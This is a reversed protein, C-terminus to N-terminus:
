GATKLAYSIHALETKDGKESLVRRYEFEIQAEELHRSAPISSAYRARRTAPVGNTRVQVDGNILRYLGGSGASGFGFARRLSPPRKRPLPLQPSKTSVETEEASGRFRARKVSEDKEFWKEPGDYNSDDERSRRLSPSPISCSHSHQSAINEIGQLESLHCSNNSSNFPSRPQVNNGLKVGSTQINANCQTGPQSQGCREHEKANAKRRRTVSGYPSPRSLYNFQRMQRLTGDEQNEDANKQRQRARMKSIGERCDSNRRKRQGLVQISAVVSPPLPLNLIAHALINADMDNENVGDNVDPETKADDDLQTEGYNLSESSPAIYQPMRRVPAIVCNDHGVPPAATEPPIM